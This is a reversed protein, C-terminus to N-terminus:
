QKSNKDRYFVPLCPRVNKRNEIICYEQYCDKFMAFDKCAAFEEASVPQKMLKCSRITYWGSKAATGLSGRYNEGRQEWAKKSMALAGSLRIEKEQTRHRIITRVSM